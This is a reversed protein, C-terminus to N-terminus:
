DVALSLRSLCGARISGRTGCRSLDSAARGAVVDGTSSQPGVTECPDTTRRTRLLPEASVPVRSTLHFRLHWDPPRRAVLRLNRPRTRTSAVPLAVSRFVGLRHRDRPQVLCPRCFQHSKKLVERTVVPPGDLRGQVHLDPQLGAVIDEHTTAALLGIKRRKLVKRLNFAIVQALTRDLNATFEDALIWQPQQAIALALRFRYRQGDSLEAPTRLLLQAEGLGCAALLALADATEGPLADVLLQEGLPLVDLHLVGDLQAAASRMLSSKGSGSPGTFLVVDGANIPLELGTAIVHQGQEFNIGFHDMVVAARATLQKPLLDYAVSVQM